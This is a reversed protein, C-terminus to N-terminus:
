MDQWVHRGVGVGMGAGGGVANTASAAAASASAAWRRLGASGFTGFRGVSGAVERVIAVGRAVCSAAHLGGVGRIASADGGHRSKFQYVAFLAVVLMSAAVVIVGLINAVTLAVTRM